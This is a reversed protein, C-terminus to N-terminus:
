KKPPTLSLGSPIYAVIQVLGSHYIIIITSYSTSHSNVPSISTGLFVQGLAVKEVVFGVHGSRPDLAMRPFIELSQDLSVSNIILTKYQEAVSVQHLM